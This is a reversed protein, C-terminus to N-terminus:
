AFIINPFIEQILSSDYFYIIIINLELNGEIKSNSRDKMGPFNPQYSFKYLYTPTKKRMQIDAVELINNVFLMDGYLQVLENIKNENIEDKGFYFERIVKSITAVKEDIGRRLTEAIATEFNDNIEKILDSTSGLFRLIGEHSNYGILLPVDIGDKVIEDIPKPM